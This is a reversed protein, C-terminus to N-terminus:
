MSRRIRQCRQLGDNAWLCQVNGDTHAKLDPQLEYSDGVWWKVIIRYQLEHHPKYGNKQEM